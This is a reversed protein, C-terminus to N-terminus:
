PDDEDIRQHFPVEDYGVSRSTMMWRCDPFLHSMEHVIDRLSERVKVSGIEDIGDLLLLGQGTRIVDLLKQREFGKPWFSQELCLM